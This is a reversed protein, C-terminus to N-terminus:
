AGRAQLYADIQYAIIGLQRQIEVLEGDQVPRPMLSVSGQFKGSDAAVAHARQALGRLASYLEPKNV